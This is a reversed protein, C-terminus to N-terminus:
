TSDERLGGKGEIATLNSVLEPNVGRANIVDMAAQNSTLSGSPRFGPRPLQQIGRMLINNSTQETVAQQLQQAGPATPIVPAATYNGASRQINAAPMRQAEQLRTNKTGFVGRGAEMLEAQAKENTHYYGRRQDLQRSRNAGERFAERMRGLFGKNGTNISTDIAKNARMGVNPASGRGVISELGRELGGENIGKSAALDQVRKAGVRMRRSKTMPMYKWVDRGAEGMTNAIGRSGGELTKLTTDFFGRGSRYGQATRRAVQAAGRGIRPILTSLGLTAWGMGLKEMTPADLPYAPRTRYVPAALKISSTKYLDDLKNKNVKKSRLERLVDGILKSSKKNALPAAMLLPTALLGHGSTALAAGAGGLLYEAPLKNARYSSRIVKGLSSHMDPKPFGKPLKNGARVFERAAQLRRVDGAIAGATGLGIGGLLRSLTEKAGMDGKFFPSIALESGTGLATMDTIARAASLAGLDNIPKNLRAALGGAAGSSGGVTAATLMPAIEKLLKPTKKYKSLARSTAQQGLAGLGARLVYSDLPLSDGALGKSNLAKLLYETGKEVLDLKSDAQKIIPAELKGTAINM